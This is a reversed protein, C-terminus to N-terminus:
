PWAVLGQRHAAPTTTITKSAQLFVGKGIQKIAGIQRWLQNRRQKVTGPVPQATPSLWQCIGCCRLLGGGAGAWQFARQCPQHLVIQKEFVGGAGAHEKSWAPLSNPLLTLATL